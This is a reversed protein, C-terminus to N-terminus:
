ELIRKLKQKRLYQNVLKKHTENSELDLLCFMFNVNLTNDSNIISLTECWCNNTKEKKEEYCTGCDTFEDFTKLIDRHKCYIKM